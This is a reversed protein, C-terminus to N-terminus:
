RTLVYRRIYSVFVWSAVGPNKNFQRTLVYRRIYSVFVTFDYSTKFSCITTLVYRRIYSVFVHNLRSKKTSKEYLLFMDGFIPSSFQLLEVCDM